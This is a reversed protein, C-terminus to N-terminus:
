GHGVMQEVLDVAASEDSGEVWHMKVGRREMGRFYTEQRKALRGIDRGLATRMEVLSVAGCLYRAVHRYEMGLQELRERQLGARLLQRVEDILGEELRQELRAAIRQRLVSREWRVAIVLPHLDM